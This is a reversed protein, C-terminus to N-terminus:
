VLGEVIPSQTYLWAARTHCLSSALSPKGYPNYRFRLQSPDLDLYRSLIVRLLGRAMVYHTRDEEFYFKRARKREETSLIQEMDRLTLANQELVDQDLVYQDLVDQDLIARWVHVEDCAVRLM